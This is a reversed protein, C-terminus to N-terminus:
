PAAALRESFDRLQSVTAHQEGHHAVAAELVGEFAARSATVQGLELLAWAHLWRAHLRDPHHPEYLEAYGALAREIERLATNADGSRLCVRAIWATADVTHPNDPGLARLRADRIWRMIDLAEAYRGEDELIRVMSMRIRTTQAHDPGLTRAHMEFAREAYTHAEEMRGLMRYVGSVAGYARGLFPHDAEYTDQCIRLAEELVPLADDARDMRVFMGGLNNLAYALDVPSVDSPDLARLLAVAAEFHPLAERDRGLRAYVYGLTSRTWSLEQPSAHPLAELISLARELLVAGEDLRGQAQVNLALDTFAVATREHGPGLVRELEAIARRASAEGREYAILDHQAVALNRWAEAQLSDQRATIDEIAAFDRTAEVLLSEAVADFGMAHHVTGLTLLLPARLEPQDVLESRARVTGIELLERASLDAANGVTPNVETFLRQLFDAITRASEAEERARFEAARARDREKEVRESHVILMVAGTVLVAVAGAISTTIVPHRRMSKMTRELASAPRALLPRGELFRQVDDALHAASAYRKERDFHIATACITDLDGRLRRRWRLATSDSPASSTSKSPLPIDPPIRGAELARTMSDLRDGFPHNGTLMEWLIVGLAYVDSRVDVNANEHRLQEPSMYAPTGIRQGEITMAIEGAVTDIDLAKAIGFDIVTPVAEGDIEHVLVNGPKLDRHLVGRAHAHEVARCVKLFLELRTRLELGAQECYRTIPPGLILPMVVYPRRSLPDTGADLVRAVNPHELRALARREWEFRAMVRAGDLGPRLVKVAVDRPLPERQRGHYVMGMGGEGLVGLIEYPGVREPISSSSPITQLAALLHESTHPGLVGEELLGGSTAEQALLSEVERRLEDDGGCTGDLHAAREHPRLELAGLLIEKARQFREADV